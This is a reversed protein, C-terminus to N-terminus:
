GAVVTSENTFIRIHQQGCSDFRIPLMEIAVVYPNLIPTPFTLRATFCGNRTAGGDTPSTKLLNVTSLAAAM